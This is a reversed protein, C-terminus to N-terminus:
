QIEAQGMYRPIAVASLAITDVESTEGFELLIEWSRM